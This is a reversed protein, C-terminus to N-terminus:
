GAIWTRAKDLGDVIKITAHEVSLEALSPLRDNIVMLQAMSFVLASRGGARSHSTQKLFGALERIKGATLESLDSNTYDWITFLSPTDKYFDVLQAEVEEPTPTGSCIFTTLQMEPDHKVEIM